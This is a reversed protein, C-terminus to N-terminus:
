GRILGVYQHCRAAPLIIQLKLRPNAPFNPYYQSTKRLVAFKEALSPEGRSGCGKPSKTRWLCYPIFIGSWGRVVCKQKQRHKRPALMKVEIERSRRSGSVWTRLRTRSIARNRPVDDTEQSAMDGRNLGPQLDYISVRTQWQGQLGTSCPLYARVQTWM